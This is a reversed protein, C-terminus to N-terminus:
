KPHVSINNQGESSLYIHRCSLFRSLFTSLTLGTCYNARRPPIHHSLSVSLLLPAISTHRRARPVVCGSEVLGVSMTIAMANALLPGQVQSCRRIGREKLPRITKNKLKNTETAAVKWAFTRRNTSVSSSFFNCYLRDRFVSRGQNESKLKKENRFWPVTRCCMNATSLHNILGMTVFHCFTSIRFIQSSVNEAIPQLCSELWTVQGLRFSPPSLVRPLSLLALCTTSKFYFFPVTHVSLPKPSM